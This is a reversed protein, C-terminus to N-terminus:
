YGGTGTMTDSASSQSGAASSLNSTAVYFNEVGQGTVQNRHDSVFTYLLHGNYALQSGHSDRVITLTGALGPTTPISTDTVPPWLGALGGTVNSKTATDAAYYYLPSGHTDTLITTPKGDVTTAFTRVGTSTAPPAGSTPKGYSTGGSSAAVVVATIAIAGTVGAAALAITSKRQLM